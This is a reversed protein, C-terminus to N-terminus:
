IDLIWYSLAAMTKSDTIDRKQLMTKIQDRTFFHEELVENEDLHKESKELGLSKFVHIAEDTFGIATHITFYPEIRKAKWGTEEILERRAADIPSEKLDIMGAPIEWFWQNLVPRFQYVLLVSEGDDTIPLVAAAPIHRAIEHTVQNGNPMEFTELGVQIIRGDYIKQVSIPNTINKM